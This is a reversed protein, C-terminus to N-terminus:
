YTFLGRLIYLDSFNVKIYIPHTYLPYNFKEKANGFFVLFYVHIKSDM